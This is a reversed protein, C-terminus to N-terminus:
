KDKILKKYDITDFKFEMQKMYDCYNNIMDFNKANEKPVYLQYQYDKAENTFEWVAIKNKSDIIHIIIQNTNGDTNYPQFHTLSYKKDNNKQFTTLPMPSPGDMDWYVLTSDTIIRRGAYGWDSPAYLYYTGKYSYLPLWETPLAPHKFVKYPNSYMKKIAEYNGKFSEIDWKDFTFDTLQQYFTSERNKEIYIAHYYHKTKGRLIFTTDGSKAISTDVTKPIARTAPISDKTASTDSSITTKKDVTPSSCATWGCFITIINLRHRTMKSHISVTEPKANPRTERGAPLCPLVFSDVWCL